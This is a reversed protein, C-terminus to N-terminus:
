STGQQILRPQSTSGGWVFDDPRTYFIAWTRMYMFFICCLVCLMLLQLCVTTLVIKQRFAGTYRVAQRPKRPGELPGVVLALSHYAPLEKVFPRSYTTVPGYKRAHQCGSDRKPVSLSNDTSAVYGGRIRWTDAVYGSRYRCRPWQGILPIFIM